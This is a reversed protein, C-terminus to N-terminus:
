CGSGAPCWSALVFSIGGQGELHERARPSASVWPGPEAETLLSLATCDAAQTGMRRWWQRARGGPASM